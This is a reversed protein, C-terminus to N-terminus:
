RKKTVISEVLAGANAQSLYLFLGQEGSVSLVKRLDTKM